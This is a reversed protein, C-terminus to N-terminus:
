IGEKNLSKQLELAEKFYENFTKRFNNPYYGYFYIADELLDNFIDSVEKIKNELYNVYEFSFSGDVNYISYEKTEKLFQEELNM